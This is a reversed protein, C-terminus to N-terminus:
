IRGVLMTFDFRVGLLIRDFIKNYDLLMRAFMSTFCTVPQAELLPAAARLFAAAGAVAAGAGSRATTTGRGSTTGVAGDDDTWPDKADM